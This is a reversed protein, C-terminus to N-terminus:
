SHGFEFFSACLPSIIEQRGCSTAETRSAVGGSRAQALGHIESWQRGDVPDYERLAIAVSPADDERIERSSPRGM